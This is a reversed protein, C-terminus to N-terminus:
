PMSVRRARTTAGRGHVCPALVGGACARVRRQPKGKPNHIDSVYRTGGPAEFDDDLEFVDGKDDTIPTDDVILQPMNHSDSRLAHPHEM